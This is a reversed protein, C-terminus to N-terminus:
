ASAAEVPRPGGKVYFLAGPKRAERRIRSVALKCTVEKIAAGVRGGVYVNVATDDKRAFQRVGVRRGISVCAGSFALDIVAPETGAIRSLVTDAAQAGLPGAAYCSMRLPRGSPSAADGAAVVRDDDVSTLTEDTLLRGLGDTRLGSAAALEPVGFGAAWITLGSARVGGGALVVEGPRVESVVADEIVAVGQRSLGKAVHRRGPESFSPALTGGCVLTVSRGREALEAATEIGTLGGGVVTVPADLPLEGLRARLRRASELESVDFAFEAAGPVSSPIAGRSGVAYIVYDYDLARGSELRVTRAATDICAASDVVLRVGEGLLTGYDVTAEGTGAVFQHLRVRDVFEPRANVLTIDVDGRLRLHNAAFTGAYGGGLVVVKHRAPLGTM